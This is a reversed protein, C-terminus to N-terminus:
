SLHSSLYAEAAALGTDVSKDDAAESFTSRVREVVDHATIEKKPDTDLTIWHLLVAQTMLIRWLVPKTTPSFTEFVTVARHLAAVEPSSWPHGKVKTEAMMADYRDQFEGYRMCRTTGDGAPVTLLDVLSDVAGLRVHQLSHVVPAYGEEGKHKAEHDYEIAEGCSALSDGSNWTRYLHKALRYKATAEPVLSFDFRAMGTELMRFLVLPSVLRHITSPLYYGSELRFRRKQCPKDLRGQAESEAIGYIRWFAEDCRESLEFLMPQVETLLKKKADYEYDRQAKRAENRGTWWNNIVAGLVAAAVVGIVSIVGPTM